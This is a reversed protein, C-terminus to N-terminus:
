KDPRNPPSQYGRRYSAFLRKNKEGASVANIKIKHWKGDANAPYFGVVYQRRRDDASHRLMEYIELSNKMASAHYIGGSTKTMEEVAARDLPTADKSINVRRLKRQRVVDLLIRPEGETKDFVVAYIQADFERLHRQMEEFDHRSNGDAGDSIVLLTQKSTKKEKIKDTALCIADYLSNPEGRKGALETQIQEETPVFDFVFSGRGDFTLVFFDDKVPIERAFRRLAELIAATRESSLPRLDFVIGFSVASEADSFHAVPQRAGDAFIEFQEQRLGKVPNGQKDTVSVNVSVLDTEVRIPKENQGRAPVIFIAAFFLFGTALRLFKM